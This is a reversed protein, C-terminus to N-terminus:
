KGKNKNHKRIESLIFKGPMNISGGKCEGVASRVVEMTEPNRLAPAICDFDNPNCNMKCWVWVDYDVKPMTVEIKGMDEWRQLLQIVEYFQKGAPNKTWDRIIATGVHDARGNCTLRKAEYIERANGVKAALLSSLDVPPDQVDPKNNPYSESFDGGGDLKRLPPTLPPTSKKERSYEERSYETADNCVNQANRYVNQGDNDASILFHPLKSRNQVRRKTASLYNEQIGRSTLINVSNFLSADFMGWKVLDKVVQDVLGITVGTTEKVIKNRMKEDWEAFYGNRYVACLLHFLISIGKAGYTVELSVVKEDAFIDVDVPFYDLGKKQKGAM